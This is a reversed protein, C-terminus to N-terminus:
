EKIVKSVSSSGGHIIHILYVGQNLEDLNIMENKLNTSKEKTYHLVEKGTIDTVLIDTTQNSTFDADVYIFRNTPNPHVSIFDSSQISTTFLAVVTLSHNVANFNRDSM